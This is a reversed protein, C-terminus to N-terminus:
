NKQRNEWGMMRIWRCALFADVRGKTQGLRNGARDSGYKLSGRSSVTVISFDSCRRELGKQLSTQGVDGDAPDGREREVEGTWRSLSTQDGNMPQRTSPLKGIMDIDARSVRAM